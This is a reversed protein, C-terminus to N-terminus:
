FAQINTITITPVKIKPAGAEYATQAATQIQALTYTSLDKPLSRNFSEELAAGNVLTGKLVLIQRGDPPTQAMGIGCFLAVALVRSLLFENM